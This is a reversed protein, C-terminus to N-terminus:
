LGPNGDVRAAERICSRCYEGYWESLVRQEAKGMGVGKVLNTGTGNVLPEVAKCRRGEGIAFREYEGRIVEREISNVVRMAVLLNHRHTGLKQRSLQLRKQPSLPQDSLALTPSLHSDTADLSYETRFLGYCASQALDVNGDADPHGPTRSSAHSGMATDLDSLSISRVMVNDPTVGLRRMFNATNRDKYWAWGDRLSYFSNWLMSAALLVLIFSNASITKNVWTFLSILMELASGLYSALASGLDEMLLRALTRRQPLRRMEINFASADIQLQTVETSHGVQGFIQISKKTRSHYGLRRVQDAVLDALDKADLDLDNLAHQELIHAMGPIWPNSSWDVRIYVALKCKTKAVHTIVIKSILRYSSQFPLHWPTRRDTIVYCLHDNAVDVTQYDRVSAYREYGFLGPRPITLTFERSLRGPSESSVPKWPGQKLDRARHEHQLLQWLASRDGFMVHYLAKPSIDYEREVALRTYGPPVYIVPQAPLKFANRDTISGYLGRDIRTPARFETSARARGQYDTPTDASVDEWSDLSLSRKVTETEMRLLEKIVEELPQPKDAQSNQVLYNLRRQLLRLPELFTKITIRTTGSSTDKFHVFLFDCDKGPAATVEDVSALSIGSTLVLGFHNSYFYMEKTTVYARGPFDQQGSPNWTARFVMALREELKVNPFLLRFQADQTKLQLPYYNPFDPLSGEASPRIKEVSITNRHRKTPSM